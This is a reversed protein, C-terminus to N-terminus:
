VRIVYLFFLSGNNQLPEGNPAPFLVQVRDLYVYNIINYSNSIVRSANRSANHSIIKQDAVLFADLEFGAAEAM